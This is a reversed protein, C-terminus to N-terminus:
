LSPDSKHAQKEKPLVDSQCIQEKHDALLGLVSKEQKHGLQGTERDYYQVKDSLREEPSVQTRNIEKVLDALEKAQMNGNDPVILVEHISSPLVFYNAGVLEAIKEPVGDRALVAAGDVKDPNTLVYMPTFDLPLPATQDFMNDPKTFGMMEAMLDEMSYFCVPNRENEAQVADRHLQEKCIGWSELLNNTIAAAAIGDETREVQIRYFVALNGCPMYPKDKLYDRNTEPDCMKMSLMPRISEYDMFTSINVPTHAHHITQIEAIERMADELSRGQAVQEAFPELYVTPSFNEGERLITLGSLMRDNSKTVEVASVKATEYEPPLYEKIHDKVYQNFEQIQM